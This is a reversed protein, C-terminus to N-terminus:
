DYYDLEPATNLQRFKKLLRILQDRDRQGLSEALHEELRQHLDILEVVLKRGAPTLQLV